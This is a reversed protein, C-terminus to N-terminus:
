RSVLGYFSKKKILSRSAEITMRFMARLSAGVGSEGEWRAEREGWVEGIAEDIPRLYAGSPVIGSSTLAVSIWYM